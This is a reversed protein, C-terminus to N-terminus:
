NRNTKPNKLAFSPLEASSAPPATYAELGDDEGLKELFSTVYTNIPTRGINFSTTLVAPETAYIIAAVPSAMVLFTMILGLVGNLFRQLVKKM